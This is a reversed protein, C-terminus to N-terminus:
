QRQIKRVTVSNDAGEAVILVGTVENGGSGYLGQGSETMLMVKVNGVGEVNKLLDELKMELDTKTEMNEGTTTSFNQNETETETKSIPFAIVMLLLGLLLIVLWHQRNMKGWLFSVTKREIGFDRALGDRIGREQEQTINGATSIVATIQDGNIHVVIDETEIGNEKCKKSIEKQLERSYNEQLYLAQLNETNKEELATLEEQYNLRFEQLLKEGNGFLNFVPTSLIYILLIGMFSRIYREYKVDPVLHLVASFVIYFFAITKVWRYIEEKM